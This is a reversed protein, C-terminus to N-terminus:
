CWGLFKADNGLLLVVEKDAVKFKVRRITGSEVLSDLAEMLTGHIEQDYYGNETFIQSRLQQLPVCKWFNIYKAIHASFPNDTTKM